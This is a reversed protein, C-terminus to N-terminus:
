NGPTYLEQCTKASDTVLACCEDSDKANGRRPPLSSAARSDQDTFKLTTNKISYNANEKRNDRYKGM